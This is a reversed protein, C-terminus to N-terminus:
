IGGTLQNFEDPDKARLGAKEALTMRDFQEQTVKGSGLASAGNTPPTSQLSENVRRNVEDGIVSKLSAVAASIAKADGLKVLPETLDKPLDNDILLATTSSSLERANLEAERDDLAKIRAEEEAKAKETASMKALKAGENKADELKQKTDAEWKAKATEVAKAARKDAESDLQSQTFTTETAQNETQESNETTAQNNETVEAM